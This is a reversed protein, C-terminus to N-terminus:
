PVSAVQQRAVTASDCTTRQFGNATPRGRESCVVTAPFVNGSERTKRRGEERRTDVM